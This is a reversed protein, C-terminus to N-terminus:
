RNENERRIIQLKIFSFHSVKEWSVHNCCQKVQILNLDESNKNSRKGFIEPNHDSGSMKKKKAKKQGPPSMIVNKM